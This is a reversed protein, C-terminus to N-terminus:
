RAGACGAVLSPVGSLFQSPLRGATRRIGSPCSCKDSRIGRRDRHGHALAVAVINDGATKIAGIGVFILAFTGIFEALCPRLVKM